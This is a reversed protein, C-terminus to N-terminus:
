VLLNDIIGKRPKLNFAEALEVIQDDTMSQKIKGETLIYTQAAKEVTEILGLAKDVSDGAALLGHHPWLVIRFEKMKDATARGIESNGCVMWPLLGIGEPFVLICESNLSWMTKTFCKEKLEHMFTMAVTYTPHCHLVLRHETDVKLRESQCLLHTPLESTPKRDEEFGWIIKYSTGTKNLHIIGLHKEPNSKINKFPSGSATVLFYYGALDACPQELSFERNKDTSQVEVYSAVEQTTLRYSLNGAHNEGWGVEYITQSTKIIDKLFDAQLISTAM